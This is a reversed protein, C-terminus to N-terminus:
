DTSTDDGVTIDTDSTEDSENDPDEGTNVPLTYDLPKFAQTVKLVPQVAVDIDQANVNIVEHSTSAKFMHVTKIDGSTKSKFLQNGAGAASSQLTIDSMNVRKYKEDRIVIMDHNNISQDNTVIVTHLSDDQKPKYAQVKSRLTKTILTSDKSYMRKALGNKSVFVVQTDAQELQSRFSYALITEDPTLGQKEFLAYVTDGNSKDRTSLRKLKSTPLQYMNGKNTFITLIDDTTTDYRILMDETMVGNKLLDTTKVYNFKDITVTIPVEIKEATYKFENLASADKLITKRKDLGNKVFTELTKNHRDIILQTRLDKEAIYRESWVIRTHLDKLEVELAEADIHNLQYMRMSAIAEAQAENFSFAMQQGNISQLGQLVTELEQRGSTRQAVYVIHELIKPIQVLAEVINLRKKAKELEYKFERIMLTHQFALYATLYSHLNYTRPTKQDLAMWSLTYTSQLKTKSFLMAKAKEKDMNKDLKVDIHLGDTTSFDEISKIGPLNNAAIAKKVSIVYADANGGLEYPVETIVLEDSATPSDIITGQNILHAEGTEYYPTLDGILTGGTPLDPGKLVKMLEPITMDPNKAFAIVTKIADVPNHPAISSTFGVAIGTKVGNILLAPFEVPLVEPVKKTGDYNLVYPVLKESLRNVFLDGYISNRVETYRAASAKSGDISSFSGEGHIPPLNFVYNQTLYDISPYSGTHPSYDGMVNGEIKQSKITKSTANLKLDNMAVLIYRHIPKLGDRVDPIARSSAVAIGYDLFDKADAVQVDVKKIIEASLDIVEKTKRKAM